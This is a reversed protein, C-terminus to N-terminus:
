RTNADSRTSLKRMAVDARLQRSAEEGDIAQGADLEDLGEAIQADLDTASAHPKPSGSQYNM